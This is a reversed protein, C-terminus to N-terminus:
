KQQIDKLMRNFKRRSRAFQFTGLMKVITINVIQKVTLPKPFTKRGPNTYDAFSDAVVDYLDTEPPAKNGAIHHVFMGAETPWKVGELIQRKQDLLKQLTERDYVYLIPNPSSPPLDPQIVVIYELGKASSEAVLQEPTAEFRRIFSFSLYGLPKETGVSRIDDLTNRSKEQNKRGEDGSSNLIEQM